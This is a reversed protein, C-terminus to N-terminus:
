GSLESVFVWGSLWEAVLEGVFRTLLRFTNVSDRYSAKSPSLTAIVVSQSGDTLSEELIRTLLSARYPM